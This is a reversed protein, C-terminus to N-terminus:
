PKYNVFHGGKFTSGTSSGGCIGITTPDPPTACNLTGPVMFGAGKFTSVKQDLAAATLHKFGIQDGWRTILLLDQLEEPADGTYEWSAQGYATMVNRWAIAQPDTAVHPNTDFGSYYWNTASASPFPSGYCTYTVIAPKTVGLQKLAALTSICGAVQAPILLVADASSAGAAQFASVYDPTTGTDSEFVVKYTQHLKAMIPILLSQVAYKGAPNSSSVIALNKAGLKSAIEALGGIMLGGGGDLLWVHKNTIDAGGGEGSVIVPIKGALVNYLSANGVVALGLNVLVDKNALFQAGCKQGDEESQIVCKDLVLPHGGIGGLYSNIFQVSASAAHDMEAFSPAAGEEDAFGIKVPALNPNAKGTHGGAYKSTIAITSKQITSLSSGSSAASGFAAALALCAAIVAVLVGPRRM